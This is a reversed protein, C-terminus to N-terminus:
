EETLVIVHDGCVAIVTMSQGDAHGHIFAHGLEEAFCSTARFSFTARHMEESRVFAVPAAVTDDTALGRESGANGVGQLVFVDGATAKTVKAVASDILAGKM